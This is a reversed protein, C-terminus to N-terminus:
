GDYGYYGFGMIEEGSPTIYTDEFTTFDSGYSEQYERFTLFKREHYKGNEDIFDTSYGWGRDEMPPYPYYEDYYAAEEPTVFQPPMGKTTEVYKHADQDWHKWAWNDHYYVNLLKDGNIWARYDDQTCLVLSHVSSSNTEFVGARINIM